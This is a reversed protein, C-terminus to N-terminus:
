RRPAPAASGGAAAHLAWTPSCAYTLQWREAAGAQGAQRGHRRGAPRAKGPQKAQRGGAHRAQTAAPSDCTYAHVPYSLARTLTRLARARTYVGRAAAGAQRRQGAQASRAQGAGQRGRRGTAQAGGAQRRSAQARRLTSIRARSDRVEHPPSRGRVLTMPRRRRATCPGLPAPPTRHFLYFGHVTEGDVRPVQARLINSRNGVDARPSHQLSEWCRARRHVLFSLILLGRRPCQPVRRKPHWTRSWAGPSPPPSQQSWDAPVCPDQPPNSRNGIGAEM